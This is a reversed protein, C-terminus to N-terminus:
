IIKLNLSTYFFMRSYNKLYDFLRSVIPNVKIKNIHQTFIRIGHLYIIIYFSLFKCIKREKEILFQM